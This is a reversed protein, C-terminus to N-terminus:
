FIGEEEAPIVESFAAFRTRMHRRRLLKDQAPLPLDTLCIIGKSILLDVVDEYVRIMELDSRQLEVPPEKVPLPSPM